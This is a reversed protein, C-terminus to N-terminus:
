AHGNGRLAAVWINVAEADTRYFSHPPAGLVREIADMYAAHTTVIEEIRRLEDGQQEFSLLLRAHTNGM